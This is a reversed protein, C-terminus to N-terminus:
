EMASDINPKQMKGGKPKKDVRSEEITKRYQLGGAGKWFLSPMMNELGPVNTM